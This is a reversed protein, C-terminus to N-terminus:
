AWWGSRNVSFGLMHAGGPFELNWAGGCALEDPADLPGGADLWEGFTVKGESWGALDSASPYRGGTALRWPPQTMTVVAPSANVM